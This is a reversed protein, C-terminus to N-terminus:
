KKRKTKKEGTENYFLQLMVKNEVGVLAAIEYINELTFGAPHDILKNFTIHHMGLDKTLVTKPVIKLIESFSNLQRSTILKNVTIYRPDNGM